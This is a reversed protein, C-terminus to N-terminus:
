PWSSRQRRIPLELSWRKQKKSYNASPLLRWKVLIVHRCRHLMFVLLPICFNCSAHIWFSWFCVVTNPTRSPSTCSKWREWSELSLKTRAKWYQWGTRLAGWMSRRRAVVSALLREAFTSHLPSMFHCLLFHVCLRDYKVIRMIIPCRWMRNALRQLVLM